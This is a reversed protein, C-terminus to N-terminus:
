ARANQSERQSAIIQLIEYIKPFERALSDRMFGDAALLYVETLSTATASRNEGMLFGMEGLFSPGKLCLPPQGSRDIQINGSLIFYFEDSPEGETFIIKSKPLQKTKFFYFFNELEPDTFDDFARINGLSHLFLRLYFSKSLNEEFQPFEIFLGVLEERSFEILTSRELALISGSRNFPGMAALEGLHAGESLEMSDQGIRDLQLKGEALIYFSSGEDSERFLYNGTEIVMVKANSLIHLRKLPPISELIDFDFAKKVEATGPFDKSLQELLEGQKSDETLPTESVSAQVNSVQEQLNKIMTEPACAKKLQDIIALALAQRRLRSYGTAALYAYGFARKKIPDKSNMLHLDFLTRCSRAFDDWQFSQEWISDMTRRWALFDQTEFIDDLQRWLSEDVKLSM